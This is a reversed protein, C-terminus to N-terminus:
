IMKFNLIILTIIDGSVNSPIACLKAVGRHLEKSAFGARIEEANRVGNEGAMMSANACVANVRRHLLADRYM